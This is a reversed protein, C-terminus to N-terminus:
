DLDVRSSRSLFLGEAMSAVLRPKVNHIDSSFVMSMHNTDMKFSFTAASRSPKGSM